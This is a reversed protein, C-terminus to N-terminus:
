LDPSSQWFSHRPHHTETGAAGPLYDTPWQQGCSLKNATHHLCHSKHPSKSNPSYNLLTTVTNQPKPNPGVFSSSSGGLLFSWRLLWLHSALEQVPSPKQMFMPSSFIGKQSPCIEPNMRGALKCLTVEVSFFFFLFYSNKYQVPACHQAQCGQDRASGRLSAHHEPVNNDM